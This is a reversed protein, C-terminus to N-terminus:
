EITNIVVFFSSVGIVIWLLVAQVMPKIGVAKITKISLSCGILFLTLVLGRKAILVLSKTLMEPLPLYTNITMALVFLFIFWPISVKNKGAGAEAKHEKRFWFM